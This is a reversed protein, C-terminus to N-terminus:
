TDSCLVPTSKCQSGASIGLPQLPVVESMAVVYNERTAVSVSCGLGVNGLLGDLSLIGAFAQSAEQHTMM